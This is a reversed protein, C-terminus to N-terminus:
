LFYMLYFVLSVKFHVLLELAMPMLEEEEWENDKRLMDHYVKNADTSFQHRLSEM